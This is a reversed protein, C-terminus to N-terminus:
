QCFLIFVAGVILALFMTSPPQGHGYVRPPSACRFMSVSFLFCVCPQRHLQSVCHPGSVRIPRSAGLFHHSKSTGPCIEFSCIFHIRLSCTRPRSQTCHSLLVVFFTVEDGDLCSNYGKWSSRKPSPKSGDLAYKELNGVFHMCCSSEPMRASGSKDERSYSCAHAQM